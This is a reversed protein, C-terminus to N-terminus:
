IEHIYQADVFFQTATAKNTLSFAAGVSSYPAVEDDSVQIRSDAISGAIFGNWSLGDDLDAAIYALGAEARLSVQPQWVGGLPELVDRRGRMGLHIGYARTDLETNYAFDSLFGPLAGHFTQDLNLWSYRVGAYYGYAHNDAEHRAEVNAFVQGWNLDVNYRADEVVNQPNATLFAGSPGGTAGPIGM